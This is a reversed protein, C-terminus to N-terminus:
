RRRPGPRGRFILVEPDKLLLNRLLSPTSFPLSPRNTGPFAGADGRVLPTSKQLYGGQITSAEAERTVAMRYATGNV